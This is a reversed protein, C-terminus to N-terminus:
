EGEKLYAGRYILNFACRRNRCFPQTDRPSLPEGCEPCAMVKTGLTRLTRHLAMNEVKPTTTYDM